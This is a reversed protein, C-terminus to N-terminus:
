IFDTKYLWIWVFMHSFHNGKNKEAEEVAGIYATSSLQSTDVSPDLAYGILLACVTIFIIVVDILFLATATSLSVM